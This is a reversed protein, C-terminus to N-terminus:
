VWSLGSGDQSQRQIAPESCSTITLALGDHLLSFSKMAVGSILTRTSGAGSVGTSGTGSVDTSGTGTGTVGTGTGTVETGTGTVGTGTGIVEAGTGSPVPIGDFATKLTKFGLQGAEM